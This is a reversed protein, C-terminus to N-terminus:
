TAFYNRFSGTLGARFSLPSKSEGAREGSLTSLYLSPGIRLIASSRPDESLFVNSDYGLEAGIGPHLEFNGLRIGRGEARSRDAMWQQAHAVSEVLSLALLACCLSCFGIRM